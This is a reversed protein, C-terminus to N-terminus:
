CLFPWQKQKHLRFTLHQFFIPAELFIFHIIIFVTRLSKLRFNTTTSFPHFQSNKRNESLHFVNHVVFKTSMGADGSFFRVPLYFLRSMPLTKNVCLFSLDPTRVFGRSDNLSKSFISLCIFLHIFSYIFAGECKHWSTKKSLINVILCTNSNVIGNM